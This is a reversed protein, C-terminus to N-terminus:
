GKPEAPGANGLGTRLKQYHHPTLHLVQTALRGAGNWLAYQLRSSLPLAEAGWSAPFDYGWERALPGFVRRLHPHLAQPYADFFVRERGATTNGAPLDRIPEVGVKRLFGHFGENLAEFRIIHHYRRSGWNYQSISPRTGGHFRRLYAEFDRGTKEIFQFRERDAATVWGGNSEFRASDTFAGRHNNCLKTYYSLLRDLPHRV